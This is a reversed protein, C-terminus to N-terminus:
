KKYCDEEWLWHSICFSFFEEKKVLKSRKKPWIAGQHDLHTLLRQADFIQIMWHEILGNFWFLVM